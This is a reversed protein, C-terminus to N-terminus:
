SRASPPAVDGIGVIHIRNKGDRKAQFVVAEDAARILSDVDHADKPHVAMGASITLQGLGTPGLDPFEESALRARFREFVQLPSAVTVAPTGATRPQRPGGKDWFVVAFEDGGGSLRAVLDHSRCCQRLLRATQWLIRDGAAHGYRENYQKFNDIDFLLLTIPLGERSSWALKEQLFERFYRGNALGTLEDTRADRWLQEQRQRIAAVHSLASAMIKAMPRVQGAAEPPFSMVLMVQSSDGTPIPEVVSTDPATPGSEMGPEAIRAQVGPPLFASLRQVLASLDDLSAQSLGGLVQELLAMASIAVRAPIPSDAVPPPASTNETRHSGM